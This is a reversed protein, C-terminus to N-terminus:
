VGGKQLIGLFKDKGIEEVLAGLRQRPKAREKYIAMVGAVVTLAEDESFIRELKFGDRLQRGGYGGLYIAYGIKKNIVDMAGHIGIDSSQPRTCSNPCGSIAIKFKHPLSMGCVLRLEKELREVLAFTNILGMKCWNNGPCAAITRLRAGSTGTLIGASKLEEEIKPIDELKVFPIELGQRVTAHAYGQAYKQALQGIKELQEKKYSGGGMRTRLVFFGEQKQKLFGRAKLDEYNIEEM